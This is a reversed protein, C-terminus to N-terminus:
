RRRLRLYTGGNIQGRGINNENDWVHIMGQLDFEGIAIKRTPSKLDHSINFGL